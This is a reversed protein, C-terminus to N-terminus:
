RDSQAAVALESEGLIEGPRFGRPIAFVASGIPTTWQNLLDLEALQAQLPLYQHELDAQFAIFVLGVNSIQGARPLDVYNYPRRLIRQSGDDTRARRIHAAVDIVPFGISNKM